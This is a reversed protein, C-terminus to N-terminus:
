SQFSSPSRRRAPHGAPVAHPNPGGPHDSGVPSETPAHRFDIHVGFAGLGPGIGDPVEQRIFVVGTHIFRLHNQFRGVLGDFPRDFFLNPQEPRTVAASPRRHSGRAAPSPLARTRFCNTKWGKRLYRRRHGPGRRPATAGAAHIRIGHFGNLPSNGIEQSKGSRKKGEGTSEPANEDRCEPKAPQLRGAARPPRGVKM